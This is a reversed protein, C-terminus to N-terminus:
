QPITLLLKQESFQFTETADPIVSLNACGSSDQPADGDSDSFLAPYDEVKVGYRLLRERVLCTRLYPQGAPDRAIHFVLEAYDVKKGNLFIDVPYIGPLQTGQEFLTLDVAGSNNKVQSTDFTYIRKHTESSYVTPCMFGTFVVLLVSWSSIRM